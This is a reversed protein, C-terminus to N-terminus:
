KIKIRSQPQKWINKNNFRLKKKAEQPNVYNGKMWGDLLDYHTAEDIDYVYYKSKWLAIYEIKRVNHRANVHFEVVTKGFRLKVYATEDMVRNFYGLKAGMVTGAGLWWQLLDIYHIGINM